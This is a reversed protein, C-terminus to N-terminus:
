IAKGQWEGEKAERCCSLVAPPDKSCERTLPLSPSVSLLAQLMELAAEYAGGAVSLYCSPVFLGGSSVTVVANRLCKYFIILFGLALEKFSDM